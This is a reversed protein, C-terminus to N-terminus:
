AQPAVIPTQEQWLIEMPLFAGGSGSTGLFAATLAPARLANAVKRAAAKADRGPLFAILDQAMPALSCVPVSHQSNAQMVLMLWLNGETIFINVPHSNENKWSVTQGLGSAGSILGASEMHILHREDTMEPPRILIKPAFEGFANTCLDSFLLAEQQSFESLFRLTRLSFRGPQRIEGSLVRSWLKQMRESSADEAFRQFVNLWDEDVDPVTEANSQISDDPSRLDELAAVAISEVNSQRRFEKAVLRAAVREGIEDDAEIYAVAQQAQAKIVQVKADSNADIAARVAKLKAAPIAAVDGVLSGIAKRASLLLATPIGGFEIAPTLQRAAEM